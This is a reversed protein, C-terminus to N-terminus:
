YRRGPAAGAAARLQRRRRGRYAGVGCVSSSWRHVCVLPPGPQESLEELDRRVTAASVGLQTAADAVTIRGQEGLIALLRTWREHTHM